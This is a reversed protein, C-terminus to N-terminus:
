TRRLTAVVAAWPLPRRLLRLDRGQTDLEDPPGADLGCQSAWAGFRSQGSLASRAAHVTAALAADYIGEFGPDTERLIRDSLAQVQGTDLGHPDGSVQAWVQDLLRAAEGLSEQPASDLLRQACAAAFATRERPNLKLVQGQLRRAQAQPTRATRRLPWWIM